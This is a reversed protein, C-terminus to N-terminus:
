LSPHARVEHGQFAGCPLPQTAVKLETRMPTGLLPAPSPLLVLAQLVSGKGFGSNLLIKLTSCCMKLMPTM